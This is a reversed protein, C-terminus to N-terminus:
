QEVEGNVDVDLMGPLEEFFTDEDWQSPDPVLILRRRDPEPLDEREDLELLAGFSEFDADELEDDEDGDGFSGTAGDEEPFWDPLRGGPWPKLWVSCEVATPLGDMAISDWQEHWLEGDFFRFRVAFVSGELSSAPRKDRSISIRGNGPDFSVEVMDLPQLVREPTGSMARQVTTGEFSVRISLPTGSVGASGDQSRAVCTAVADQLSDFTTTVTSDRVARDRISARTSALQNVFLSLSGVLVGTLGVVVLVELLTFGRRKM